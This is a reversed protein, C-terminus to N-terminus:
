FVVLEAPDDDGQVPDAKLEAARMASSPPSSKWASPAKFSLGKANITQTPADAGVAILAIAVAGLASPFRTRTPMAAIRGPGRHAPRAAQGRAPPPSPHWSTGAM